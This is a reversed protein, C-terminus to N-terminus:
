YLELFSFTWSFQRVAQYMQVSINMASQGLSTWVHLIVISISFCLSCFCFCIISCIWIDCSLLLFVSYLLPLLYKGWCPSADVLFCTVYVVSCTIPTLNKYSGHRICMVFSNRESTTIFIHIIQDIYYLSINASDIVFISPIFTTYFIISMKSFCEIFIYCRQYLM